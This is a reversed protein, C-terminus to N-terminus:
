ASGCRQMNECCVCNEVGTFLCVPWILVTVGVRFIDATVQKVDLVHYM